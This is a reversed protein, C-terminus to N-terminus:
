NKSKESGKKSGDSTKKKKLKSGTKSQTSEKGTRSGPGSPPKLVMDGVMAEIENRLMAEEIKQM